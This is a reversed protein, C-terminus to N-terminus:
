ELEKPKNQRAHRELETRFEVSRKAQEIKRQKPAQNEIAAQAAIEPEQQYAIREFASSSAEPKPTFAMPLVGINKSSYQKLGWAPVGRSRREKVMARTAPDLRSLEEDSLEPNVYPEPEKKGMKVKTTKKPFDYIVKKGKPTPGSPDWNPDTPSQSSGGLRMSEPLPKPKPTTKYEAPGYQANEGTMGKSLLGVQVAALKEQEQIRRLVKFGEAKNPTIRSVNIRDGTATAKEQAMRLHKDCVAEVGERSVGPLRLFHTAPGSHVDPSDSYDCRVEGTKMKRGAGQNIMPSKLTKLHEVNRAVAPSTESITTIGNEETIRQQPPIYRPAVRPRSKKRGVEVLGDNSRSSDDVTDFPDAM